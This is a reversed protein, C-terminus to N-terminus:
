YLHRVHPWLSSWPRATGTCLMIAADQEENDVGQGNDVRTAQRCGTFDAEYGKSGRQLILIVPGNAENPPPGWDAFSMHGSYATPLKRSPGYHALAGAQGYNQALIVARPRDPPPIRSWARAVADTLQPWGVEEAVEPNVAQPIAIASTPLLPLSLVATVAATLTVATILLRRRAWRVAPECGAALLVLLLPIAYYAKGGTAIM